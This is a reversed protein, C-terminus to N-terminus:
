KLNCFYSFGGVGLPFNLLVGTEFNIERQNRQYHAFIFETDTFDANDASYFEFHSIALQKQRDETKLNTFKCYFDVRVV